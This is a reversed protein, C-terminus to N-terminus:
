MEFNNTDSEEIKKEKEAPLVVPILALFKLNGVNKWRKNRANHDCLSPPAISLFIGVFATLLFSTEKLPLM